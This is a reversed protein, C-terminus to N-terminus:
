ALEIGYSDIIRQLWLAHYKGESYKVKGLHMALLSNEAEDFWPAGSDGERPSENSAEIVVSFKNPHHKIRESVDVVTGTTFMTSRGTLSLQDDIAPTSISNLTAPSDIVTNSFNVTDYLKAFAVDINSMKSAPYKRIYQAIETGDVLRVVAKPPKHIGALVHYASMLYFGSPDSQCTVIAGISGKRPSRKDGAEIAM